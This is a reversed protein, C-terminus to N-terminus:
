PTWRTDEDIIGCIETPGGAPYELSHAASMLLWYAHAPRLTELSSMGPDLGPYYAVDVGDHFGHVATYLGEISALAETLPLESDPLYSVLSWGTPLDIQADVPVPDGQLCWERPELMHIWFGHYPDLEELDCYEPPVSSYFSKPGGDYSLVADYADDIGWLVDQVRTVPLTGSIPAVNFSLLRWGVDMSLCMQSLGESPVPQPPRGIATGPAGGQSSPSPTAPFLVPPVPVGLAGSPGEAGAGSATVLLVGVVIAVWLTVTAARM